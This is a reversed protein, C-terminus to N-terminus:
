TRLARVPDISMARRAPLFCALLAVITMVIFAVAFALPDRPSVNYLLSTMLRTMILAAITGILMGGATLILGRSMVLRLLDVARAGLAM